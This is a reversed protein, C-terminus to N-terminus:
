GKNDLIGHTLDLCYGLIRDSTTRPFRAAIQVISEYTSRVDALDKKVDSASPVGVGDQPGGKLGIAIKDLQKRVDSVVVHTPYAGQGPHIAFYVVDESEALAEHEVNTWITGGGTVARGLEITDEAFQNLLADLRKLTKRNDSSLHTLEKVNRKTALNGYLDWADNYDLTSAGAKTTYYDVWKQGGMQLIAADSKGYTQIKDQTVPLPGLIL